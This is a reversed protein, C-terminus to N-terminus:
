RNSKSNANIKGANLLVNMENKEVNYKNNVDDMFNRIEHFVM